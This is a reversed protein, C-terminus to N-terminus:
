SRTAAATPPEFEFHFDTVTVDVRTAAPDISVVEPDPPEEQEIPMGCHEAEFADIVGLEEEYEAFISPSIEDGAEVFADVFAKAEAAIDESAAALIAMMQAATPMGEQQDLELALACYQAFAADM